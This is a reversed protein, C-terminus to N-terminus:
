RLGKLLETARAPAIEALRREVREVLEGRRRLRAKEVRTISLLAIMLNTDLRKIDVAALAEDCERFKHAYLLSDVHDFVLDIAADVAAHAVLSYTDVLWSLAAISEVTASACARAPSGARDSADAFEGQVTTFQQHVFSFVRWGRADVAFDRSAIATM